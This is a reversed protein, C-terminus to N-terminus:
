SEVTLYMEKIYNNANIAKVTLKLDNRSLLFNNHIRKVYGVKTKGKYLAVANKDSVNDKEHKYSLEEGEKVLNSSINFYSLSAVDTVFKIHKETSESFDALFEFTDTPSKGQTLALLDFIDDKDKAEWFRLIDNRNVKNKSVVRFSLQNEIELPTLREVEKLGMFYNLGQKQAEKFEETYSFIIGGGIENRKIKGIILRTENPKKRWSLYINNTLM